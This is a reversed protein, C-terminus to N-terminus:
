PISSARMGLLSLIGRSASPWGSTQLKAKDEQRPRGGLSRLAASGAGATRLFYLYLGSNNIKSPKLTSWDGAKSFYTKSQGMIVICQFILNSFLTKSQELQGLQFSCVHGAIFTALTKRGM